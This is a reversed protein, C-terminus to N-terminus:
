FPSIYTGAALVSLLSNNNNNLIVAIASCAVTSYRRIEYSKNIYKNKSTSAIKYYIIRFSRTMKPDRITRMARVSDQNTPEASLACTRDFM